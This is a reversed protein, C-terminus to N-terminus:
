FLFRYLPVFALRFVRRQTGDVRSRPGELCVPDVPCASFVKGTRSRGQAAGLVGRLRWRKTRGRRLAQECSAAALGLAKRPCAGQHLNGAADRVTTRAARRVRVAENESALSGCQAHIGGGVQVRLPQDKHGRRWRM